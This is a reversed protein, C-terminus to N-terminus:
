LLGLEVFSTICEGVVMHDVVKVGVLDLAAKLRRTIRADAESPEAVGSPHNHVFIVAAANRALAEKVVERPHVETADITGRFLEVYEILRRHADLFFVAFVEHERGGLYIKLFLRILQPNKFVLARSHFQQDILEQAQLLVQSAPAERFADGERVYLTTQISADGVGNPRCPITVHRPSTRHFASPDISLARAGSPSATTSDVIAMIM